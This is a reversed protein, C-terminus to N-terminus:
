SSSRSRSGGSRSGGSRSGSGKAAERKAKDGAKDAAKAAEEAAQERVRAAEAHADALLKEAAEQAERVKAEAEEAAERVKSQAEADAESLKAEAAAKAAADPDQKGGSRKAARKQQANGFVEVFAVHGKEISSRDGIYTYSISAARGSGRVVATEVPHGLHDELAAEVKGAALGYQSREPDYEEREQVRESLEHNVGKAIAVRQEPTYRSRNFKVLEEANSTVGFAAELGAQDKADLTVGPLSQIATESM